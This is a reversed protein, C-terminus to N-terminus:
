DTQENRMKSLIERAQQRVKERHASSDVAENVTQPKFWAQGTPVFAGTRKAEAIEERIKRQMMDREAAMREQYEDKKSKVILDHAEVKKPSEIYKCLFQYLAPATLGYYEGYLGFVGGKFADAIEPKTLDAMDKYEMMMEDLATAMLIAERADFDKIRALSCIYKFQKALWDLRAPKPINRYRPYKAEDMRIAALAQVDPITPVPNSSTQLQLAQNNDM